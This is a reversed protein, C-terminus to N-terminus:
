GRGERVVDIIAMDPFTRLLAARMEEPPFEYGEPASPNMFIGLLSVPEKLLIRKGLRVWKQMREFPLFVKTPDNVIITDISEPYRAVRELQLLTLAGPIWLTGVQLRVNKEVWRFSEMLEDGIWGWEGPYLDVFADIRGRLGQPCRELRYPALKEMAEKVVQEISPGASAGIVFVMADTISPHAAAQRDYAGDVWVLEAGLHQFRQKIERIDITKPTGALLIEAQRLAQGIYVEGLASSIHTKGIIEWSEPREAFASEITAVWQGPFVRIPPKPKGSWVDQKEGDVGISCLGIPVGRAWSEEVLANLATTKGANKSLGVVSVSRVSSSQFTHFLQSFQSSM